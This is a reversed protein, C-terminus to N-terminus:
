QGAAGLYDVALSAMARVGTLLASDDIVFRPSHNPPSIDDALGNPAAGLHLYLGPVEQAFFAFDEAGTVWTADPELSNGVIRRLTPLMQATLKPDNFTVPNSQGITVDVKTETAAAIGKATQRIQEQIRERMPQNFTRITGVMTVDDPIINARNGGHISGITVVAPAVTLDTQRSVVTQLAVVLESAAVIPDIGRWPQAGHTQRGHVAITLVQSAAMFPGPRCLIKGLKKPVVHLGFIADVKPNELAGEKVMLEAGGEEGTPAGEEAPQFIFKVTGPLDAKLRSLVEAVGLLIALHADHGCAHMVGVTQGNYEGQARSRFPLDTDETVPLADMDSRLAVVPGPQGGRLLGVVGTHAVNTRVEFGLARLREAVKAGTRFERNGLEPHEHFDRRWAVVQPQLDAALRDIREDLAGATAPVGSLFFLIPAIGLCRRLHCPNM